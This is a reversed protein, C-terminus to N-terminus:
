NRNKGTFAGVITQKPVYGIYFTLAALLMLPYRLGGGWGQTLHVTLVAVLMIVSLPMASERTWVGLILFAGGVLEIVGILVAFVSPIPLGIGDLMNSFGTIGPTTFLKGIGAILFIAGIVLRMFHEGYSTFFKNLTENKNM